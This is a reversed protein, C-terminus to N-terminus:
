CASQQSALRRPGIGGRRGSPYAQLSKAACDTIAEYTWSGHM